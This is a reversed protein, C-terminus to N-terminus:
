GFLYHRWVKLAYVIALLELDCMVYNEEHRTLKRSIYSIVRGEQMLVGGLGEKYADTCVLFKTDMDLVKLILTKKLMEKLRWFAEVCKETWVFKNKKKQLKTFLNEIKSFVKVLWQYYGELGMFICVEPVNTPAPWEMIAKVKELDV